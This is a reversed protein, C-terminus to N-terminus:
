ATDKYIGDDDDNHQAEGEDEELGGAEDTKQAKGRMRQVRRVWAM